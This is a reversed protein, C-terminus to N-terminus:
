RNFDTDDPCGEQEVFGDDGVDSDGDSDCNGEAVVGKLDSDMTAGAAITTTTATTESSLRRQKTGHKCRSEKANMLAAAAMSKSLGALKPVLSSWRSVFEASMRAKDPFAKWESIIVSSNASNTGNTNSTSSNGHSTALEDDNSTSNSNSNNNDIEYHRCNNEISQLVQRLRRSFLPLTAFSGALLQEQIENLPIILNEIVDTAQSLFLAAQEHLFGIFDLLFQKCM